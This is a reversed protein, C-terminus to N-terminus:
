KAELEAVRTRLSKVEAILNAIIEASSYDMGQMEEGDKEGTAVKTRSVEQVEHAILGVFTSGDAKWTGEVPKLSDIYAGSTTIPGTINKLRYDSSTNYTVATTGNQTISGITSGNFLFDLYKEGAGTSSSHGIIQRSYVGGGAKAELVIGSAFGSLSTTGVLLNGSSDIRAREAAGVYFYIPKSASNTGIQTGTSDSRLFSGHTNNQVQLAVDSANAYVHLREGPSSTGIGLNGSSDLRMREIESASGSANYFAISTDLTTNSGSYIAKIMAMNRVVASAARPDEAVFSLTGIDGNAMDTAATGINVRANTGRLTLAPTGTMDGTTPSSTGIGVNGAFYNAATGSAYINWKNTGSSVLSTIGYNNTATTLDRIYVGSQSTLTDSVGAKAPNVVDVGRYEAYTIGSGNSFTIPGVAIGTGNNTAATTLTQSFSAVRQTTGATVAGSVTLANVQNAAGGVGMYGNVQVTDTSADGLTTNGTINANGDVSLKNTPSSTGIGLNGSADLTMAQTFTIANGATGSPATSWIHAGLWQLYSSAEGNVGYKFGSNVYANSTLYILSPGGLSGANFLGMGPALLEIARGQSWASPTVGVGLNGSSDLRMTESGNNSWALTNTTPLYMGNGATVNGTPILKTATATGTTALNTGDFTLASGSTAVKSGDLYLVGNATGGSLVPNATISVVGTSDAISAAATGDKAKINTVEINTADITTVALNSITVVGSGKPTINIGINTDDGTASLTPANGTAANALTLENVASGTATVKLLENGNTDNIGTIVKPSTMSLTTGDSTANAIGGLVGANNYQVQTNSGGTVGGAKVFDSGNWVCVAREGPVITVGTTYTPTVSNTARLVINQGGTTENVVIYTKSYDTLTGSSIAWAPATINRTVTRSGTCRLVAYQATTAGINDAIATGETSALLVDADTSLDLSGAISIDLYETLGYNVVDGWTNPETGTVPLPLDLLTTRNITM